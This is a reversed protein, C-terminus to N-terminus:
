SKKKEGAKAAVPERAVRRKPKREGGGAEAEEPQIVVKGQRIEELAVSTIKKLDTEVLKPAGQSLEKARKAAIVVLKYISSCQKMVDEIPVHPM